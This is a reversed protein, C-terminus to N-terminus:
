VRKTFVERMTRSHMLKSWFGAKKREDDNMIREGVFAMSKSKKLKSRLFSVRGKQYGHMPSATNSLAGSSSSVSSISSISYSSLSSSACTIVRSSSRSVKLLRERLCLSCVGPSQEHKPHKKCKRSSSSSPKRPNNMNHTYTNKSNM